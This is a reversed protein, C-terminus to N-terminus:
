FNQQSLGTSHRMREPPKLRIIKLLPDSNVSSLDQPTIFIFQRHEMSKAVTIMTQLAIKRSVPDLYVDFEDMVRFPTELNEGLALLLSLTAYSKEGGSLSKVDKTQSKEDMNDKQVIPNLRKNKHDFELSGCSGKKNLIDDFFQDTTEAIHRRFERWLKKRNDLDLNLNDVNGKIMEVSELKSDLMQKARKYKELLVEPDETIRKRKKAREIQKCMETVKCNYYGPDKDTSIPDIADLEEQTTIQETDTSRRKKQTTATLLAAKQRSTQLSDTEDLLIKEQESIATEFHKVREHKKKLKQEIFSQEKFFQEMESEANSIDGMIKQARSTIEEYKERITQIPPKMVEIQRRLEEENGKIGEKDEEAKTVDEELETTDISFNGAAEADGRLTELINQFNLINKNVQNLSRNNENWSIKVERHKKLVKAEKFRAEELASNLEVLEDKVQEIKQSTDVGISQRLSNAGRDNSIMSRYGKRVEWYDANPLFIVRGINGGRISERGSNDRILLARESEEKSSFLAVCEIKANDVLCNFVLDDQVNLVTAVTDVGEPPSSINYRSHVHTQFLSCERSRCGIATRLQMFTARDADNTVIFRDLVGGGMSYEAIAALHEKGANVKIHAGIPGVAPGTFKGRKKAEEVKQHMTMCKQGFVALSNTASSQLDKLKKNVAHFQSNVSNVNQKVTDAQPELDEYEQRYQSVKDKMTSLQEKLNTISRETDQMKKTRKAEESQKSGAMEMIQKRAETLRRSAAEFKRHADKFNRKEVHLEQELKKKPAIAARLDVEMDSKLKAATQAEDSLLKMKDELQTKKGDSGEANDADEKAMDYEQLRKLHKAKWESLQKEQVEVRDKQENYLSWAYLVKFQAVNDDLKGLEQCEKWEKELQKVNAESGAMANRTRERTENLEQINDWVAAYSRDMRELETAKCFFAYKDEPKGNLFKKAEEQDLVVVPNEVQINLQDLMAELDKKSKSCEKGKKSYLKYGNYGTKSICREVIITDGYLEKMYGDESCNLIHVRIKAGHNERGAEKRILEGLNRARHTRRAGAGLCIQIAALIASKGSGNQGHIFNVNRCLDVTLKRHCMFNEVQVRTIIGAEAPRGEHNIKKPIRVSENTTATTSNIDNVISQQSLVPGAIEEVAQPTPTTSTDDNNEIEEGGEEKEEDVDMNDVSVNDEDVAKGRPNSKRVKKTRRAM